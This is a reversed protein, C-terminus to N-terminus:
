LATRAVNGAQGDDTNAAIEQLAKRLRENENTLREIEMDQSDFAAQVRIRVDKNGAPISDNRWGNACLEHLIADYKGRETQGNM